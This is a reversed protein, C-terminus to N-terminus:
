KRKNLETKVRAIERRLRTRNKPDEKPNVMKNASQMLRMELEKLKEQLQEKTLQTYNTKMEVLVRWRLGHL